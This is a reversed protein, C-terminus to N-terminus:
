QSLENWHASYASISMLRMSLDFNDRIIWVGCFAVALLAIGIRMGLLVLLFLVGILLLGITLNDM